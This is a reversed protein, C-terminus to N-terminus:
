PGLHAAPETAEIWTAPVTSLPVLRVGIPVSAENMSTALVVRDLDQAKVTQRVAIM